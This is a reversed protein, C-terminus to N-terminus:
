MQFSSSTLSLINALKIHHLNLLWLLQTQISLGVFTWGDM